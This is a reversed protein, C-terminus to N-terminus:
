SKVQFYNRSWKLLLMQLPFAFWHKTMIGWTWPIRSKLEQRLSPPRSCCTKRLQPQLSASRLAPSSHREGEGGEPAVKQASRLGPSSTKMVAEAPPANQGATSEKLCKCLWQPSNLPRSPLTSPSHMDCAFGGVPPSLVPLLLAKM